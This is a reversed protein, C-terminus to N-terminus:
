LNKILEAIESSPIFFFCIDKIGVTHKFTNMRVTFRVTGLYGHKRKDFPRLFLGTFEAFINVM